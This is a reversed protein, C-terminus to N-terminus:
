RAADEAESILRKLHPVHKKSAELFNHIGDVSRKFEQIFRLYSPDDWDERLRRAHQYITNTELEINSNIQTLRTVFEDLRKTDIKAPGQMYCGGTINGTHNFDSLDQKLIDNVYEQVTPLTIDFDAQNGITLTKIDNVDFIVQRGNIIYRNQGSDIKSLTDELQKSAMRATQKGSKVEALIYKCKGEISYKSKRVGVLDIQDGREVSKIDSYWKYDPFQEKMKQEAINEMELGTECNLKGSLPKDFLLGSDKLLDLDYLMQRAQEPTQALGKSILMEMKLDNSANSRSISDLLKIDKYELEHHSKERM